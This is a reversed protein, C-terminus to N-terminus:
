SLCDRELTEDHNQGGYTERRPIIHLEMNIFTITINSVTFKILTTIIKNYLIHLTPPLLPYQHLAEPPSPPLHIEFDVVKIFTSARIIRV